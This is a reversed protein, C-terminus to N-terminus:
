LRVTPLLNGSLVEQIQALHQVAFDQQLPLLLAEAQVVPCMIKTGHIEQLKIPIDQDAKEAQELAKTKDITLFAGIKEDFKEIRQLLAQTLDFSTIERDLLLQAASSINLEHLDM